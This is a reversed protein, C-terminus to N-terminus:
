NLLFCVEKGFHKQRGNQKFSLGTSPRAATGLTGTAVTWFFTVGLPQNKAFPVHRLDETALLCCREKGLAKLWKTPKGSRNLQKLRARHSAWDLGLSLSPDDLFQSIRSHRQHLAQRRVRSLLSVKFGPDQWQCEVVQGGFSWQELSQCHVELQFLYAQAAAMPGSVVKWPHQASQLREWSIGWSTKLQPWLSSPWRLFIRSLTTFHQTLITLLPDEHSSHLDFVLDSSGLKHRNLQQAACARLWKLRKPALGQAQHGWAATAFVGGKFVRWKHTLSPIRLKRLRGSRSLGKDQRTRAITIRHRRAGSYDTGLDRALATVPPDDPTLLKRLAKESAADTCVFCTKTLSMKLGDLLLSQKLLKFSKVAKTATTAAVPGETDVSVDDLWATINSTLNSSSLKSLSPFLAKCACPCLSM